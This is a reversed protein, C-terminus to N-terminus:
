KKIGIFLERRPMLGGKLFKAKLGAAGMIRLTEDVSFVGLDHRDVFYKPEVGKKAILIHMNVVALAQRLRAYTQRKYM